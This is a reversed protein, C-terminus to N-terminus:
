LDYLFLQFGEEYYEELIGNKWALVGEKSSEAICFGFKEYARCAWTADPHAILAMQKLGKARCKEEAFQMLKRGFGKGVHEVDLYIYGLYATDGFYQLSITGVATEGELGLYFDRKKYNRVAWDDSVDHEDMDAPDLIERYWDASSRVFEAIQKMEPFVARRVQFLATDQKLPRQKLTTSM